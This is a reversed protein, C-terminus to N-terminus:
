SYGRVQEAILEQPVSVGSKFITVGGDKASPKWNGVIEGDLAVVPRFIGHDNHAYHALGPDLVVDRSKYGILYEDYAPLFRLTGSRFGRTRFDKHIFFNRGKWRESFLEGGLATIGKQCDRVNLGSWWVFDELTAPSHSRFYKRALLALADERPIEPINPVRESVLRYTNRPGLAGSCVIGELEAMRLQHNYVLHEEPIGGRKLAEGIVDETTEGLDGVTKEIISLAQYKEKGGFAFGLSKTWGNMTALAKDYCLLRMWGFDEPSVLQWTCRLLHARIIRGDDFAQKFAMLSPKSTRMVVARRMARYDQAQIAGFWSVVESPDKFIPCILQQSLLRASVPNM